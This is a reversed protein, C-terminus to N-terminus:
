LEFDPSDPRLNAPPLKDICYFKILETLARKFESVYEEAEIRNRRQVYFGTMMDTCNIGPLTIDYISYHDHHFTSKDFGSTFRFRSSMSKFTKNCLRLDMDLIQLYVGTGLYDVRVQINM